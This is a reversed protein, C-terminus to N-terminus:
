AGGRIDPQAELDPTARLVARGRRSTPAIAISPTYHWSKELIPSCAHGPTAYRYQSASDGARHDGPSESASAAKVDMQQLAGSFEAPQMATDADVASPVIRPTDEKGGVVAEKLDEG